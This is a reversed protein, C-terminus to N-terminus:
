SKWCIILTILALVGCICLFIIGLVTSLYWTSLVLITGLGGPSGKVEGNSWSTLTHILFLIGSIIAIALIM